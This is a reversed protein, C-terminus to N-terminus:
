SPAGVRDALLQDLKAHLEGLSPATSPDEWNALTNLHIELLDAMRRRSFGVAERAERIRLSVEASDLSPGERSSQPMAVM